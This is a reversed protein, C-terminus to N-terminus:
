VGASGALDSTMLDSSMLDSATFNSAAAGGGAPESIVTGGAVSSIAANGASAPTARANGARVIWCCTSSAVPIASRTVAIVSARSCALGSLEAVSTPSAPLAADPDVALESESTAST